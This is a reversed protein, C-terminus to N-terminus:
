EDAAREDPDGVSDADGYEAGSRDSEQEGTFADSIPEGHQDGHSANEILDAESREFGEAVGGGGEAVPRDEPPVDPNPNPGGIEGAEQAALREQAGPDSDKPTEPM